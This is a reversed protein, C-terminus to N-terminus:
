RRLEAGHAAARRSARLLMDIGAPDCFTTTMDAVVERVGRTFATALHEGAEGASAMDIEAPLTVIAPPGPAGARYGRSVGIGAAGLPELRLGGRGYGDARGLALSRRPADITMARTAEWMPRPVLDDGPM